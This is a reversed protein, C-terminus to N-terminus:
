PEVDGKHRDHRQNGFVVLTVAWLAAGLLLAARDGWTLADPATFVAFLVAVTSLSASIFSMVGGFGADGAGLVFLFFVFPIFIVFAIWFTAWSPAFAESLNFM